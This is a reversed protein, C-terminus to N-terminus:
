FIDPLSPFSPALNWSINDDIIDDMGSSEMINLEHVVHVVECCPTTYERGVTQKSVKIM